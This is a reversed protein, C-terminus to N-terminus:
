LKQSIGIQFAKSIYLRLKADIKMDLTNGGRERFLTFITNNLHDMTIAEPLKTDHGLKVM